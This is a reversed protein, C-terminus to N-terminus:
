KITPATRTPGTGTAATTPRPGVTAKTTPEPPKPGSGATTPRPGPLPATTPPPSYTTAGTTPRPGPATGKTSPTVPPKTAWEPTEKVRTLHVVVTAATNAPTADKDDWKKAAAKPTFETPIPADPHGAIALKATDGDQTFIGKIKPRPEMKETPPPFTGDKNPATAYTMQKVPGTDWKEDSPILTVTKPNAAADVEVVAYQVSFMDKGRGTLQNGKVLVVFKALDEASPGTEGPPLEVKTITWTGDLSAAATPNGPEGTPTAPKPGCGVAAAIALIAFLVRTRM